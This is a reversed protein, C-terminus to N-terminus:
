DNHFTGNEDEFAEDYYLHLRIYIKRGDQVFYAGNHPPFTRARIIDILERARFKKDLDILDIQNTDKLRHFTGNVKLQQHRPAKGKRILQWSKKFLRLGAIELKRYLAGGTDVPAVKVKSQSIIAGTDIGADIYHLTVGAQTNEIISWVNPYVGRNYPLYSPHLNIIGKPFINIFREFLIYGFMISIGIDPELSSIDRHIVPDKLTEGSFIQSSPLQATGLIEKGFKQKEPPHMVLGVVTEKEDKLWKLIQWGLWNNALFLIRMKLGPNQHHFTLKKKL